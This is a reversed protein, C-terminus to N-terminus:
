PKASILGVAIENNKRARGKMAEFAPEMKERLADRSGWARDIRSIFQGASMRELDLSELQLEKLFGKIKSAYALGMFPVQALASFILFHLRMGVSFDFLKLLTVLQGPTYEQKLVSARQAHHMQAMVGHSHQIDFTRLELPFFVVEADFRDIMFDAANAVLRHFRDIDIDPAAPGLERVSLGILLHGPDFAEARLLDEGVAEPELLVAPDATLQVEKEVGIEEFLKLSYRDRVTIADVRNLVQCVRSRVAYDSLPGASIAYIMVPIGLEKALVVERLYIEAEANFLIGGGGLIFLDLGYLLKVVEGRPLDRPSAVHEVDHAHRTHEANRSFVTIEVEKLSRRLETIIVELIAEDGLNLGGYSGSIGVRKM